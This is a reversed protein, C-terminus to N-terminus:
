RDPGSREASCALIVLGLAAWAAVWMAPGLSSGTVMVLGAAAVGGTSATLISGVNAGLTSGTYRVNAPFLEAIYSWSPVALFQVLILFATFVAVLAFLGTAHGLVYFIPVAALIYATFVLGLMRRQGIRDTIVGACPVAFSQLLLALTWALMVTAYSLGRTEVLYPIFFSAVAVPGNAALAVGAALILPRRYETFLDRLPSKSSKKERALTVFEPSDEIRTRLLLAIITLPVVIMFPIRWGYSAMDERSFMFGAIGVTASATVGGLASGFPTLSAFFSRRSPPAFEIAYTVSGLVESGASLGQGFRFLILLIPALIGISPYGPLMGIAASCVGMFVVTALLATRRGKRDGLSGFLLGGLPRGVFSVGYAALGALMAMGPDSAPFFVPSIYVILLAFITYDYYEIFSGVLAAIGARRAIPPIPERPPSAPRASLWSTVKAEGRQPEAQQAQRELQQM